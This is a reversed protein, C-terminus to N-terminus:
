CISNIYDIRKKSVLCKVANVFEEPHSVKLENALKIGEDDKNEYVKKLIKWILTQNIGRSMKIGYIIKNEKIKELNENDASFKVENNTIISDGITNEGLIFEENEM